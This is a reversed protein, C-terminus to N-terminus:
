VEIRSGVTLTQERPLHFAEAADASIGATALFLRKRWKAMGPRNSMTLEVTSLFYTTEDADVAFDDSERATRRLVDPVDTRQMYGFQATARVIGDDTHGLEDLIVRDAPSVYPVPLTEISLILIHEHLVHNHEVNARMALPTTQGRNLFVATGPARYISKKKRHLQEIFKELPGEARQRRRTVIERGRQWTTLVTFVALGILLPLWAGYLLKTLNAALFLLEVGLFVVAGTLVLWLPRQWRYRALFFFLTSTTAITVTVTM